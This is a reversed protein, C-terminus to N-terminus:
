PIYNFPNNLTQQGKLPSPRRLIAAVTMALACGHMNKCTHVAPMCVLQTCALKAQIWVFLADCHSPDLLSSICIDLGCTM